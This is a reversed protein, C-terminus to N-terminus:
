WLHLSLYKWLMYPAIFQVGKQEDNQGGQRTLIKGGYAEEDNQASPSSDGRSFIETM